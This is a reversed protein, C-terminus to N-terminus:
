KLAKVEILDTPRFYKILAFNFNTNTSWLCKVVIFTNTNPFEKAKLIQVAKAYAYNPSTRHRYISDIKIDKAIM